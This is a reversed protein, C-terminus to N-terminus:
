RGPGQYTPSKKAAQDVEEPTMLVTTKVSALGTASVTLSFAAASVNDPMDGIGVIDYDGFAFYCSEMTGGLSKTLKELAARRASGGDKLLGKVGDASYKGQLLYRAM